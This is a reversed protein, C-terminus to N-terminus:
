SWFLLNSGSILGCMVYWCTTLSKDAVNSPYDPCAAWCDQALDKVALVLDMFVCSSNKPFGWKNITVFEGGSMDLPWGLEAEHNFGSAIWGDLKARLKAHTKPWQQAITEGSHMCELPQVDSAGCLSRIPEPLSQPTAFM